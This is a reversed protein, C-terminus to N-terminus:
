LAEGPADAVPETTAEGSLALEERFRVNLQRIVNVADSTLEFRRGCASGVVRQAKALVTLTSFPLKIGLEQRDDSAKSVGDFAASAEGNVVFKVECPNPYPEDADRIFSFYVNERDRAPAAVIRIRTSGPILAELLAYGERSVSRSVGVQETKPQPKERRPPQWRPAPQREAEAVCINGNVRDKACVYTRSDGCGTVRYGGAGIGEVTAAEKCGTDAAFRTKLGPVCALTMLCLMLLSVGLPRYCVSHTRAPHWVNMGCVQCKQEM